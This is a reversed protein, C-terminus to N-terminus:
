NKVTIGGSYNITIILLYVTIYFTTKGPLKRNEWFIKDIISCFQFLKPEKAIAINTYSSFELM